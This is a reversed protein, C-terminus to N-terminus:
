GVPDIYVTGSESLEREVTARQDPTLWVRCTVGLRGGGGIGPVGHGTALVVVTELTALPGDYEVDYHRAALDTRAGRGPREQRRADITGAYWRPSRGVMVDPDGLKGQSRYVRATDYSIGLHEAVGRLDLPTPYRDDDLTIGRGEILGTMLDAYEPTLEAAREVSPRDYTYTGYVTLGHQEDLPKTTGDLLVRRAPQNSTPDIVAQVVAEDSSNSCWRITYPEIVTTHWFTGSTYAPLHTDEQTTTLQDRLVGVEADTLLWDNDPQDLELGADVLSDLAATIDALHHGQDRQDALVRVGLPPLQFGHHDVPPSDLRQTVLGAREDVGGGSGAEAGDVEVRLAAQGCAPERGSWRDL